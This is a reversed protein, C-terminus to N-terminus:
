GFTLMISWSPTRLFQCGLEYEGDNARCSRVEVQVWPITEPAEGAKVSLIRGQSVAERLTLCLGGVSRDTVWGEIPEAQANEDSVLVRVLKGARRAATRRDSPSGHVFPDVGPAAESITTPRRRPWLYSRGVALALITFVAGSIPIVWNQWQSLDLGSAILPSM